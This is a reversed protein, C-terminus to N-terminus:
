RVPGADSAPRREVAARIGRRGALRGRGQANRRVAAARRRGARSGLVVGDCDHRSVKWARPPRGRPPAHELGLTAAEASAAYRSRKFRAWAVLWWARALGRHDGLESFIPIAADGAQMLADATLGPDLSSHVNLLALSAHLELRRDGKARALDLVEAFADEARALAGAGEFAHGLDLLVEDRDPDDSPFLSRARGLLKAAGAHLGLDLSRRGATTLRGAARQGLAQTEPDVPGLEARNRYAQELHYGLIEEQESPGDRTKDELWGAYQQHLEARLRKRVSQYAANRVLTHKFRFAREGPFQADAPYVLRRSELRQLSVVVDRRAGVPSLELVAGVHFRDGEVAARELTAREAVPLQDLRASLLAHLAPPLSRGDDRERVFQILEELFLPNGGAAAILRQRTEEPVTLLSMAIEAADEPSLPELAITVPWVAHRELLEPRATCLVLVPEHAESALRSLLDLLADEAWHLDEIILVLPRTAAFREFLRRLAWSVDEM